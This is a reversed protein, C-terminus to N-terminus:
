PDSVSALACHLDRSISPVVADICVPLRTVCRAIKLYNLAPHTACCCSVQLLFSLHAASQVKATQVLRPHMPSSLTAMEQTLPSLNLMAKLLLGAAADQCDLRAASAIDWCSCSNQSLPKPLAQHQAALSM